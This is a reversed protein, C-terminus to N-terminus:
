PLNFIDLSKLQYTLSYNVDCLLYISKDTLYRCGSLSLARLRKLLKGAEIM